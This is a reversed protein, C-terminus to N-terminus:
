VLVCTSECGGGEKSTCPEYTGCMKPCAPERVSGPRVKGRLCHQRQRSHVRIHHPADQRFCGAPLPAVDQLLWSVRIRAQERGIGFYARRGAAADRTHHWAHRLSGPGQQLLHFAKVGPPVIFNCRLQFPRPFSACTGTVQSAPLFFQRCCLLIRHHARTM